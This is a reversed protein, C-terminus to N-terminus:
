ILNFLNRNQPLKSRFDRSRFLFCVRRVHLNEKDQLIEKRQRSLEEKGLVKSASLPERTTKKSKRKVGRGGFDTTDNTLHGRAGTGLRKPGLEEDGEFQVNRMRRRRTKNRESSPITAQFGQFLSVDQAIGEPEPVDANLLDPASEVIQLDRSTVRRGLGLHLPARGITSFDYKSTIGSPEGRRSRTTAHHVMRPTMIHPAVLFNSFFYAPSSPVIQSIQMRESFIKTSSDGRHHTFPAVIAQGFTSLAGPAQPVIIPQLADKIPKSSSPSDPRSTM